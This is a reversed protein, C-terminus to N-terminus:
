NTPGDLNNNIYTNKQLCKNFDIKLVRPQNLISSLIIDEREKTSLFQIVNLLELYPVFSFIEQRVFRPLTSM